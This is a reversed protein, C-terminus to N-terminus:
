GDNKRTLNGGVATTEDNGEELEPIAALDERLRRLSAQYVRNEPALALALEWSELAEAFLEQKRFAVGRDFFEMAQEVASRGPATPVRSGAPQPLRREGTGIGPIRREGTGSGQRLRIPGSAELIEMESLAVEVDSPHSSTEPVVVEPVAESPASADAGTIEEDTPELVTSLAATVEREKSFSGLESLCMGIAGALEQADEFRDEPRPATAKMVLKGVRVPLEPVLARPNCGQSALVANMIQADTGDFPRVGTLCEYLIVGASFVDSRRDEGSQQIREPAAYRYKGVFLANPPTRETARAAGFDILKARSSTSLIVNDPSLDRHIVGMPGLSDELDHMHQLAECVDKMVHLLMAVPLRGGRALMRRHAFRLTVGPVYEMAIFYRGELQGFDFVDVINPHNFQAALTAERVFMEVLDTRDLFQTLMTKLVVRREFGEAGKIQARWVEAMGGSALLSEIEYQSFHSGVSWAAIARRPPLTPALADRLTLDERPTM